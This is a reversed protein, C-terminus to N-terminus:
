MKQNMSGPLCQPEISKVNDIEMMKDITSDDLLLEGEGYDAESTVFIETLGGASNVEAMTAQKLGLGLSLMVVISATGIIVGLVTLFSRIKRRWLNSLSMGLIDALRM